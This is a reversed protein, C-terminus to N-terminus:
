VLNNTSGHLFNNDLKLTQERIKTDQLVIDYNLHVLSPGYKADPQIIYVSVPLNGAPNPKLTLSFTQGLRGKWQKLNARVTCIYLLVCLGCFSCMWLMADHWIDM